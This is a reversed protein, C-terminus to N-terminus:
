WAINLSVYPGLKEDAKSLNEVKYGLYVLESMIEALLKLDFQPAFRAEYSGAGSETANRVMTSMLSDLISDKQRQYLVDASVTMERLAQATILKTDNDNGANLASQM